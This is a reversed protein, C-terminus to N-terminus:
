ELRERLERTMEVMTTRFGVRSFVRQAAANSEATWLLVRPMGRSTLWDIAVELLQSAL